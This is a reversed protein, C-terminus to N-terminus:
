TITLAYAVLSGAGSGRGPGVPIGQAKAWKIFDAVILFYGPFKMREIVGLEFELRESYQGATFGETLGFAELRIQLGERAQRRLEDAEAKLAATPDAEDGGTFRPLIPSRKKPYYSCRMAIEVTNDTAEPLDAFLAAMEKQSKLFNDPSLRRRDDSAIVSGEAIAILADHAEYDERAPFFAENTAVLPLAHRYALDITAAELATDYAGVRELEVYLRNSFLAHLVGLRAEALDRHGAKLAAGIPGRPGGTLCILGESSGDLWDTILQVPEGPPTDLYARSVLGVLNAYGTENAAILVVPHLDPGHRRQGNGRSADNVEGTFCLDTQCGILPQVGEKITKQAFELAGFLNNTDTIAIAPAADRVAHGIIKGIPLAGELLSYASHVRLHIFNRAGAEPKADASMAARLIPDRPPRDSAM